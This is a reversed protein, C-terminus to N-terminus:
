RDYGLVPRLDDKDANTAHTMNAKDDAGITIAISDSVTSGGATGAITLNFTDGLEAKTVSAAGTGNASVKISDSLHTFETAAEKIDSVTYTFTANIEKDYQDLVYVGNGAASNNEAFWANFAKNTIDANKTAAKGEKIVITTARRAEDSLKVSLKVTSNKKDSAKTTKNFVDASITITADKRTLRATNTDYLDSWKLVNANVKTITNGAVTVNTNDITYYTSPIVLDKGNYKGTIKVDFGAGGNINKDEDIAATVDLEAEAGNAFAEKGTELKQKGVSAFGIGTLTDVPVVDFTLSKVKGAVDWKDVTSAKGAVKIQAISFKVTDNVVTNVDAGTLTLTYGGKKCLTDAANITGGLNNTAAFDAKVGYAYATGKGFGTDYSYDFFEEAASATMDAGYQDLYVVDSDASFDITAKATAVLANAGGNVSKIEKIAVPRRKDSVNLMYNNSEGGVVVTTLAITRDVDDATVPDNWEVDKDSWYIGATGDNEEKVTFTGESKSLSLTNTSRVISKYNTISNGATDKAVYALKVNQDGDAVDGTPGTIVLSKLLVGGGVVYNKISKAGTKNSIATINVEGGKDVYQGPEVAVASYEVGDITFIKEDKDDIKVLLINDSIFTVKSQGINDDAADLLNGDQDKTEYIMYYTDRAFDTPLSDLKVTPKYKNVFGVTEVSDLAQEMGVAVAKNVSIGTKTYVGTVYIQNGYVFDNDSTVTLKGTAKEATITKASSSWEISTSQRVSEGYQNRVDYYIYAKKKDAPDTLAQTSTIVIEKVFENQVEVTKSASKDGDTVTMTYTGASLNATTSFTVTTGDIKVEGSVPTTVGAKTVEVKAESSVEGALTAVLTSATKAQLEKIGFAEKVTVKCYLSKSYRKAGKKTSKAYTVKVPYKCM